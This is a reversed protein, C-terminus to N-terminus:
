SEIKSYFVRRIEGECQFRLHWRRRARPWSSNPVIGPWEILTLREEGGELLDWFGAVELESEDKMRFLDWHDAERFPPQPMSYRHHLAYTPSAVPDMSGLARMLAAVFSTKGAALDGELLIIDQPKLDQSFERAFAETDVLSRLIRESM